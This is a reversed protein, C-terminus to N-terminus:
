LTAIRGHGITLVERNVTIRREKEVDEALDPRPLACSEFCTAERGPVRCVRCCQGCSADRETTGAEGQRLKALGVTGPRDRGELQQKPAVRQALLRRSLVAVCETASESDLCSSPRLVGGVSAQRGDYRRLPATM